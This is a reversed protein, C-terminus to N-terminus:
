KCYCSRFLTTYPFLTSRPPRRIMLFIKKLCFVAYSIYMQSQLESTHEESRYYRGSLFDIHIVHIKAGCFFHRKRFFFKFNRNCFRTFHPIRIIILTLRQSFAAKHPFVCAFSLNTEPQFRVTHARMAKRKPATATFM